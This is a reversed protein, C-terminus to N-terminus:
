EGSLRLVAKIPYHDSGTRPLREISVLQWGPGAFIHDIPLLPIPWARGKVRAPFSFKMHTLRRMPAIDSELYRMGSGWPTLNFDGALIPNERSLPQLVAALEQRQRDQEEGPWTMHFSIIPFKPGKEPMVYAWMLAPGIREGKAKDRFKWQVPSLPLRSYIAYECTGPCKSHWPYRENLAPLLAAAKGHSEQLLLIDADSNLLIDLTAEVDANAKALNHTVLTITQAPNSPAPQGSTRSASWEHMIPLLAMAAIIAAGACHLWHRNLGAIILIALSLIAYVPIYSTIFETWGAHGFRSILVCSGILALFIGSLLKM